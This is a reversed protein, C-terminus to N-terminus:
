VYIYSACCVAEDLDQKKHLDRYEQIIDEAIKLDRYLENHQKLYVLAARVIEPNIRFTSRKKQGGKEYVFTIACDEMKRPLKEVAQVITNWNM